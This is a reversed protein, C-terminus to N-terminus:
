SIGTEDRLVCPSAERAEPGAIITDGARAIKGKPGETLKRSSCSWGSYRHEASGDIITSLLLYM